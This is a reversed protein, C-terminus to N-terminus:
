AEQSRTAEGGSGEGNGGQPIPEPGSAVERDMGSLIDGIAAQFEELMDDLKAPRPYTRAAKTAGFAFLRREIKRRVDAPSGPGPGLVEVLRTRWREHRQRQVSVLYVLLKEIKGDLDNTPAPGGGVWNRIRRAKEWWTMALLQAAAEGTVDQPQFLAAVDRHLCRFDRPDEGRAQLRREIEIEPFAVDLRRGNLAARRKGAKTKPGTSKRANRRNAALRAPSLPPKSIGEDNAM